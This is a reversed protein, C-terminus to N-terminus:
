QTAEMKLDLVVKCGGKENTQWDIDAGMRSARKKMSNIGNLDEEGGLLGIGDDDITMRIDSGTCIFAIDITTANAHKIVNVVAENLIRKLHMAVEGSLNITRDCDVIWHFELGAKKIQSVIAARRDALFTLFDIPAAQGARVLERMDELTSRALSQLHNDKAEYVLTLLKGGLDDHLDRMIREREEGIAAVMELDMLQRYTSEIEKEAKRARQELTQNLEEVRNLANVFQNILLVTIILLFAPISFNLLFTSGPSFFGIQVLMDHVAFVLILTLSLLIILFERSRTKLYHAVVQWVVYTGLMLVYGHVFDATVFFYEPPVLYMVAIAIFMLVSMMQEFRVPRRNQLRHIFLVMCFPMLSISCQVLWEWFFTSVPIDRVIVNLGSMGWFFASLSFWFWAHSQRRRLWLFGVILSLIFTLLTTIEYVTQDIFQYQRYIPAIEDHSGLHIQSLQGFRNAVAKLRIKLENEGQILIESPFCFNLPRQWNRSMPEEFRGGDGILYGNLWAQLNMNIRPFLLCWQKDHIADLKFPIRYLVEGYLGDLERHWMHPLEVQYEGKESVPNIITVYASDFLEPPTAMVSSTLM